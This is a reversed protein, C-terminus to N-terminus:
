CDLADLVAVGHHLLGTVISSICTQEVRLISQFVFCENSFHVPTVVRRKLCRAVQIRVIFHKLSIFPPGRLMIHVVSGCDGDIREGVAAVDVVVVDALGNTGRIAVFRFEAIQCIHDFGMELCICLSLNRLNPITISLQLALAPEVVHYRLFLTYDLLYQQSHSHHHEAAHICYDPILNEM